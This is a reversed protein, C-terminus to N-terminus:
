GDIGLIIKGFQKGDELCQQVAYAERLPFVRDIRNIAAAKLRIIADTPLIIKPEPAEECSLEEARRPRPISGSEFL